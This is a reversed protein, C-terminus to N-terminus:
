GAETQLAASLSQATLDISGPLIMEDPLSALLRVAQVRLRKSEDLRGKNQYIIALTYYALTFDPALYLVKKLQQIARDTDGQEALVLALIYHAEPLLPDNDLAQECYAQAQGLQGQDAYIRAIQSSALAYDPRYALCTQFRDLAQVYQKKALYDLGSQYEAEVTRAPSPQPSDVPLDPYCAPKFDSDQGPHPQMAPSVPQVSMPFSTVPQLVPPNDVPWHFVFGPSEDRQIKKQYVTSGPFNHTVFQNFVLHNAEAAGVMLWGDPALCDYLKDAMRRVQAEPFYIAVNRFLILDMVRISSLDDEVLNQYAFTVMKRLSPLIEYSGDNPTFFRQRTQKDLNRFSWERYLGQSAQQLAQRNIDTGLIHINWDSLDPLIQHLLIALSYPEEGSACGASWLRLRRTGRRKTILRPLITRRLAQMQAQDRFFYTECITVLRLLDDWLPSHTPIAQLQAFYTDMDKVGARQGALHFGRELAGRRHDPLHIGTRALILDRFRDFEEESLQPSHETM